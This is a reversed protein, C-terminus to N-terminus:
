LSDAKRPLNAARFMHPRAAKAAKANIVFEFKAARGQEHNGLAPPLNPILAAAARSCRLLIALLPVPSRLTPRVVPLPM